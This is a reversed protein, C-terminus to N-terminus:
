GSTERFSSPRLSSDARRPEPPGELSLAPEKVLQARMKQLRSKVSSDYVKSGIKIQVGAILSPDSQFDVEVERGLTSRLRTLVDHKLTDDVDHASVVAVHQKGSQQDILQQFAETVDPLLGMRNQKLLQECFRGVVPPCGTREGLATLIGIKEPVTFAPSALVHAFASSDKLAQCLASLGVRAAEVNGPDLLHYLARAYRRAITTKTM